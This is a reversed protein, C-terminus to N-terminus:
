FDLAESDLGPLPQEDFAEGRTFRRREDILDANAGARCSPSLFEDSTAGSVGPCVSAPDRFATM